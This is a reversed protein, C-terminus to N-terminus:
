QVAGTLKQKVSLLAAKGNVLGDIGGYLKLVREQFGMDTKGLRSILRIQLGHELGQGFSVPHMSYPEFRIEITHVITIARHEPVFSVRFSFRQERHSHLLDQLDRRPPSSSIRHVSPKHDCGPRTSEQDHM